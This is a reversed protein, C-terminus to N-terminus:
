KESIDWIRITGDYSGSALKKGDPSFAVSRVGSSHGELTQLLAGNKPNWLKITNDGSGSALRRGDPSFTVSRISDTHGKLILFKLEGHLNRLIITKDVSGSALTKGDPSFAVSQVVDSHGKLTHLVNGSVTDWIKVTNDYSGSALKDGFPSFMVSFVWNRHGKLTRPRANKLVDWLKITSDWSASALTRGDPSFAVSWIDDTHGELTQIVSGTKTEYLEITKNASASALFKGDPSIAIDNVQGKGTNIRSIRSHSRADFFSVGDSFAAALLNESSSYVLKSLTGDWIHTTLEEYTIENEPPFKSQITTKKERDSLIEDNWNNNESYDVPARTENPITLGPLMEATSYSFPDITPMIHEKEIQAAYPSGTGLDYTLEGTEDELVPQSNDSNKGPISKEPQSSILQTNIVLAALAISFDGMSQYRDEPKKALAKFIVEEVQNPLNPVTERPRPLPDTLHKFIVAMPTDATYPKRGTILEYLVVGLAYVDARGDIERGMGQEPAMYEPTGVGVGTGTLTAGSDNELLKAIGFDTLVPEGSGTILINSPKVDRHLIGQQHAYALARAVPALLRAAEVPPMPKGLSQKLTGAPYFPMVLYPTDDQEGYDIIGVINPHNLRALSKAERDFRKLIRDLVDPPFAGTRIVKIAVDRELRTDFAKYVTAMGGEGLQEQIHYRGISSGPQINM